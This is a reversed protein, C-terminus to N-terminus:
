YRLVLQAIVHGIRKHYHEKNGDTKLEKNSSKFLSHNELDIAM